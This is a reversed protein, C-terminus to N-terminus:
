KREGKLRNLTNKHEKITDKLSKILEYDKIEKSNEVKLNHKMALIRVNLHTDITTTSIWRM